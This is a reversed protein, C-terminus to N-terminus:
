MWQSMWARAWGEGEGEYGDHKGERIWRAGCRVAGFNFGGGWVKWRARNMVSRDGGECRAWGGGYGNGCGLCLVRGSSDGWMGRANTWVGMGTIERCRRWAAVFASYPLPLSHSPRFRAPLFTNCTETYHTSHAHKYSRHKQAEPHDGKRRRAVSDLASSEQVVYKCRMPSHTYTQLHKRCKGPM